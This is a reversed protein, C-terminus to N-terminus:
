RTSQLDRAVSRYLAEGFAVAAHHVSDEFFLHPGVRSSPLTEPWAHISKDAGAEKKVLCFTQSGGPFMPSFTCFTLVSLGRRQCESRFSLLMIENGFFPVSTQVVFAGNSTTGKVGLDIVDEIALAGNADDRRELDPTDFFILDYVGSRDGLHLRVDDFHREVRTSDFVRAHEPLWKGCAKSIEEDLESVSILLNDYKLLERVLSGSAGGVVLATRASSVSNMPVHAMVEHYYVDDLSCNQLQGNLRMIWEARDSRLVEFHQGLQTKTSGILESADIKLTIGNPTPESYGSVLKDQTCSRCMSDGSHKASRVSSFTDQLCIQHSMKTMKTELYRANEDTRLSKCPVVQRLQVGNDRLGDAKKPNNTMLEISNVGLNRLIDVAVTYDRSDPEFGLARNAEITDLGEEQLRYARIKSTLGIGRGEQRLYILVGQERSAIEELAYHLQSQCDCKQSHFLDGTMCESHVRVLVDSRGKVDGKIMVIHEPGAGYHQYIGFLFNGWATPLDVSAVFM